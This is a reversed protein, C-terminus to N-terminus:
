RLTESVLEEHIEELTKGKTEPALILCIVLGAAATGVFLWIANSVGWADILTPFVLVGLLGGVRSVSTALGSGTARVDTPFLETTYVFDLVGPGANAFMVALAFLVALMALPPATILAILVMMILTGIYSAIVLKRRGIRDVLVIGIGAGVVGLVGVAASGLYSHWRKDPDALGSLITPTYITIGYYAMTYMAWFGCTFITWRLIPRTFLKVWPREHRQQVRSSQVAQALSSESFTRDQQEFDTQQMQTLVSDAESTRGSSTLWRPSEPISRRLYMVVLALVAGLGLMLRWSIDGLPVFAAGVLYAAASGVFWMAGLRCMLAGRRGAPAFEALLTGSIPYDAGLGVGLLFRFILLQWPDQSVATLAAFVVFCLLDLLYMKKRGLRDTLRGVVLSGILMGLVASGALAISMTNSLDWKKTLIPLAVAIVALDYGDLFTGAASLRTVKRHFRRLRESELVTWDQGAAESM